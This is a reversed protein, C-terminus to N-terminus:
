GPHIVKVIVAGAGSLVADHTQFLLRSEFPQDQFGAFLEDPSHGLSAQIIERVSDIPTATDLDPIASLELCYSLPLLDVRSSLYIGFSCFVPGLSMLAERLRSCHTDERYASAGGLLRRPGRALGHSTLCEAIDTQRRRAAARSLGKGAREAM